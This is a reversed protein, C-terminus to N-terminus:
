EVFSIDMNRELVPVIGISKLKEYLFLVGKHTWRMFPIIDYDNSEFYIVSVYGKDKYKSYLHWIGSQKYQIGIEYLLKNFARASMGYDDAVTTATITGDYKMIKDLYSAKPELKRVRSELQLNRENSIINAYEYIGRLKDDESVGEIAELLAIGKRFKLDEGMAIRIVEERLRESVESKTLLLGIVFLAKPNILKMGRNAFSELGVAQPNLFDELEAKKFVRMGYKKLEVENRECVRELTSYEVKYFKSAMDITMYDLVEGLKNLIDIIVGESKGEIVMSRIYDSSILSEKNILNM